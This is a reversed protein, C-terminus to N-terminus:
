SMGIVLLHRFARAWVASKSLLQRSEGMPDHLSFLIASLGYPIPQRHVRLPCLGPGPGTGMTCIWSCLALLRRHVAVTWSCIAVAVSAPISVARLLSAIPALITRPGRIGDLSQGGGCLRGRDLDFCRCHRNWGEESRAHEGGLMRQACRIAGQQWCTFRVECTAPNAYFEEGGAHIWSM